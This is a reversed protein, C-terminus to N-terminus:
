VRKISYWFCKWISRAQHLSFHGLDKFHQINTQYGSQRHLQSSDISLRTFSPKFQLAARIGRDPSPYGQQPNAHPYSLEFAKFYQTIIPSVLRGVLWLNWYRM